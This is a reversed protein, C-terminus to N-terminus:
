WYQNRRLPTEVARRWDRWLKDVRYRVTWYKINCAESLEKLSSYVKWNYNYTEPFKIPTELAEQLAWWRNIRLRIVDYKLGLEECLVKLSKYTKWNYKCEMSSRRNTAQEKRTAWRCNEKCYNWNNDIRDITTDKEWFKKIHETYSSGMDNYFEEFSGRMFKIWRWWYDLYASDNPNICRQKAMSFIKYLRDKGMWHTTFNKKAIETVLCGCSKTKWSILSYRYAWVVKGCSCQCQEYVKGKRIEQHWLTTLRNFQTGAPITYRLGM